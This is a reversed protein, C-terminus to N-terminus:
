EKLSKLFEMAEKRSFKKIIKGSKDAIMMYPYNLINMDINYIKNNDSSEAFKSSNKIFIIQKRDSVTILRKTTYKEKLNNELTIALCDKPYSNIVFITDKDASGLYVTLNEKSLSIPETISIEALNELEDKRQYDVKYEGLFIFKDTVSDILWVSSDTCSFPAKKGITISDIFRRKSIDWIDCVVPPRTLNRYALFLNEKRLYSPYSFYCSCSDYMYSLNDVSLLSECYNIELRPYEFLLRGDLSFERFYGDWDGLLLIRGDNTFFAENNYNYFYKVGKKKRREVLGGESLPTGWRTTDAGFYFTSYSYFRHLLYNSVQMEPLRLSGSVLIISDKVDVNSSFIQNDLGIKIVHDRKLNYFYIIRNKVFPIVLLSDGISVLDDSIVFDKQLEYIHKRKIDYIVLNGNKGQFYIKDGIVTGPVVKASNKLDFYNYMVINKNPVSCMRIEYLQVPAAFNVSLLFVFILSIYKVRM